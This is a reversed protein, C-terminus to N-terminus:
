NQGKAARESRDCYPLLPSTMASQPSNGSTAERAAMGTPLFPACRQICEPPGLANTLPAAAVGALEPTGVPSHRCTVASKASMAPNVATESRSPSSPVNAKIRRDIVQHRARHPLLAARDLIEGAVPDNPTGSASSSTGSLAQRAPRAIWLRRAVAAVSALCPTRGCTRMPMLEPRATTVWIPPSAQRLWVHVCRNRWQRNPRNVIHEGNDSRDDCNAIGPRRAGLGRVWNDRGDCFQVRGIRLQRTHNFQRASRITARRDM